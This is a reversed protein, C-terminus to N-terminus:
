PCVCLLHFLADNSELVVNTKIEEKAEDTPHSEVELDNSESDDLFQCLAILLLGNIPAHHLIEFVLTVVDTHMALM